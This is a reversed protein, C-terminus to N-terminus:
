RRLFEPSALLLALAQAGSAAHDIAERTREGLTGGLLQPALSRADERSGLRAGLARAWEIRKLLASAGNWDAGRDPWGAPSGPAWTRQGLLELAALAGRGPEVPQGLARYSSVVFEAPTKYKSLASEWPEHLGILARYLSPLDGDSDLYARTLHEVARGPPEDAVFHRALGTAIHRATAPSRALDRLVAEGQAIGPERYDRGLLRQAGPEHLQPRFLFRGPEGSALPGAGGGISWGSLVSAFRTVDLQSYGGDVGLTHLELIERALNENIGLRAEPRRAAVRQVFPSHPGMSQANDLYLLMAPHREAALLLESFSGLVHPRIAEREFSGALGLVIFKDVSVAFHNSWFQVMRELFPRESAVATALRATAESVYIPRYLAGLKTAQAAAGAARAARADRAERRIEFVRALVQQSSALGPVDLLPPPGSLQAVLWGRPDSGIAALDGPRAGLGYRNAAIAPAFSERM